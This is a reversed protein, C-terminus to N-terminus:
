RRELQRFAPGGGAMYNEAHIEFFGVPPRTAVIEAYHPSRFGIGACAPRGSVAFTEM